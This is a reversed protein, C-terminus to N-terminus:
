SIADVHLHARTEGHTEARTEAARGHGGKLPTDSLGVWPAAQPPISASYGARVRFRRSAQM